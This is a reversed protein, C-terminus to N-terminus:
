VVFVVKLIFILIGVFRVFLLMLRFVVILIVLVKVSLVCCCMGFLLGKLLSIM